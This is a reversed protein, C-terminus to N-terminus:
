KGEQENALAARSIKNAKHAADSGEMFHGHFSEFNTAIAIEELAARLQNIERNMEIVSWHELQALLRKNNHEREHQLEATKLAARLKDRESAAEGLLRELRQIFDRQEQQNATLRNIERWLDGVLYSTGMHMMMPQGPLELLNFKEIRDKLDDSM